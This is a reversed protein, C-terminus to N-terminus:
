PLIGRNVLEGGVTAAGVPYAGGSAITTGTHAAPTKILGLFHRGDASAASAVNFNTTFQFVPHTNSLTTDDYYGAYWTDNLLGPTSSGTISVLTADAYVRDHDLVTLTCSTGNDLASLITTPATHSLLRRIRNITADQATEQAEIAEVLRQWWLQLQGWIASLSTPTQGPLRPLRFAM